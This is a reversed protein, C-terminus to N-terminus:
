VEEVDRLTFGLVNFFFRWLELVAKVFNVSVFYSVFFILVLIKFALTGVFVAFDRSFVGRKGFEVAGSVLSEVVSRPREWRRFIGM